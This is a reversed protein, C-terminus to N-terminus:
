RFRYRAYRLVLAMWEKNPKLHMQGLSYLMLALSHTSFRPLQEAASMLLEAAVFVDPVFQLLM